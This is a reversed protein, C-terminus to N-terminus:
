AAISDAKIRTFVSDSFQLINGADVGDYRFLGDGKYTSLKNWRIVGLDRIEFNFQGKEQLLSLNFNLAAGIGNSSFFNKSESFALKFKMDFDLYEGNPDTYLTGREIQLTNFRGGRLISLGGGVILKSSVNKQVGLYLNQYDFYNISLPGMQAKKGAYPKNGRFTVEFLDKPFKTNFQQRQHLGIILSLDNKLRHQFTFGTNFDYGGRNKDKLRDSVHDKRENDIFGSYLLGKVFDNTVANSNLHFDLDFNLYSANSDAKGLAPNKQQLLYLDNRDIELQSFASYSCLLLAITLIKKM